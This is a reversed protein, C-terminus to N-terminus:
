AGAINIGSLLASFKFSPSLTRNSHWIEGGSSGFKFTSQNKLSLGSGSPSWSNRNISIPTSNQFKTCILDAAFQTAGDDLNDFRIGIVSADIREFDGVFQTLRGRGNNQFDCGSQGNQGVRLVLRAQCKYSLQFGWFRSRLGFRFYNEPPRDDDLWQDVHRCFLAFWTAEFALYYVYKHHVFLEIFKLSQSGKRINQKTFHTLTVNPDITVEEVSM